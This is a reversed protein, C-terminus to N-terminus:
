NNRSAGDAAAGEGAEGMVGEVVVVAAREPVAVEVGVEAVVGGSAAAAAAAAVPGIRAGPM